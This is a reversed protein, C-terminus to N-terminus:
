RGTIARPADERWQGSQRYEERITSEPLNTNRTRYTQGVAISSFMVSFLAIFTLSSFVKKM